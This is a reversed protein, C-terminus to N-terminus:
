WNALPTRKWKSTAVCVYYYDDDYAIQGATGSATKSAPATVWKIITNALSVAGGATVSFDTASFSAIGKLASTATVAGITIYNGGDVWTLDATVRLVGDSSAAGIYDAIASSDVKVKNDILNAKTIKKLTGATVDKILFEDTDITTTYATLATFSVGINNGSILLAGNSATTVSVPGKSADFGFLSDATPSLIKELFEIGSAADNQVLHLDYQAM